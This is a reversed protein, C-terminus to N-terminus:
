DSGFDEEEDHHLERLSKQRFTNWAQGRVDEEDSDEYYGMYREEKDSDEEDPYDNRWNSEENEDDEDEYMEEPELDDAVLEQQVSYPQVSLIDQIWGNSSAESYYIDYVFDESSKCHETGPGAESVTLRERIMRMNNCLITEPECDKSDTPEKQPEEHVIDFLQFSDSIHTLSKGPAVEESGSQSQDPVSIKAKSSDPVIGDGEECNPRLSTILRYRSDQRETAKCARLGEQIRRTSGSSSRLIQSSRDRSLAEKVYKQLPENQSSVTAALRFVQQIIPATDGAEAVKDETRLRKCSLILAEAPDADCKRKVRLVASAMSVLQQFLNVDSEAVVHLCHCRTYTLCSIVCTEPTSSQPFM